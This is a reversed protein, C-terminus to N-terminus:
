ALDLRRCPECFTSLGVYRFRPWLESWSAVPDRCVRVATGEEENPVGAGNFLRGVTACTGFVGGLFEGARPGQMVVVAVTVGDAPRALPWLGNHGSVAPPLGAAPGFRDVAGAEGYNDVLVVSRARDAPPLSRHAAAIQATYAPWGVQDGVAPNVLPVPSAALVTLPLLPLAVVASTAVNIAVARHLHHSRSRTRAWRDAVVSGVAFLPLLLGVSYYFQGAVTVLVACAVLYAVGLARLRQWEHRGLLVVLGAGWIAVAPPGLALAQGPLFLVRAASGTLSGVM